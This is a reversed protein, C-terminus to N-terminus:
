EAPERLLAHLTPEQYRGAATREPAPRCDHKVEFLAEQQPQGTKWAQVERL